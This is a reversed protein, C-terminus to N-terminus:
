ASLDKFFLKLSIIVWSFLEIESYFCCNSTLSTDFENDQTKKKIYVKKITIYIYISSNIM